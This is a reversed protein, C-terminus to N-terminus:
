LGANSLNKEKAKANINEVEEEETVYWNYPLQIKPGSDSHSKKVYDFQVRHRRSSFMGETGFMEYDHIDEKLTRRLGWKKINVSPHAKFTIHAGTKVFHCHERSIYIIWIHSGYKQNMELNLPMDFYEETYESEFSLYFPHSSSFACHPSRAVADGENLEFLVCFAFGIWNEVTDCQVIRIISDARM